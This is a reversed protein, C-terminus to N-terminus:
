KKFIAAKTPDWVGPQLNKEQKPNVFAVPQGANPNWIGPVVNAQQYSPPQHQFPASPHQQQYIPQHQQSFLNQQQQQQYMPQSSPIPQRDDPYRTAPISNWAGLFFRYIFGSFFLNGPLGTSAVNFGGVLSGYQSTSAVNSVRNGKMIEALKEKFEFERAFCYDKVNEHLKNM